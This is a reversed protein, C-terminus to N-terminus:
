IKDDKGNAFRKVAGFIFLLGLFAGTFIAIGGSLKRGREVLDFGAIVSMISLFTVLIAATVFDYTSMRKPPTDVM